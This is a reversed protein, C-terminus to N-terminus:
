KDKSSQIERKQAIERMQDALREHFIEELLDIVRQRDDATLPMGVYNVDDCEPVIYDLDMELPPYYKKRIRYKLSNEYKKREESKPFMATIKGHEGQFSIHVYNEDQTIVPESQNEM